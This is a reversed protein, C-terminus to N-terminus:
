TNGPDGSRDVLLLRFKNLKDNHNKYAGVGAWDACFVKHDGSVGYSVGQSHVPDSTDVDALFPAIMPNHTAVTLDDFHFDPRATGFTVSGNNNAFLQTRKGFFNPTFPLAVAPSSGEDGPTLVSGRCGMRFADDHGFSLSDLLTSIPDNNAGVGDPPANDARAQ